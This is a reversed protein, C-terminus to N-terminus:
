LYYNSIKHPRFYGFLVNEYVVNCDIVTESIYLFTGSKLYEFKAFNLKDHYEHKMFELVM